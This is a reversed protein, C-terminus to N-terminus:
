HINNFSPLQIQHGPFEFAEAFQSSSSPSMESFLNAFIKRKGDANDWKKVTELLWKRGERVEWAVVCHGCQSQRYAASSKWAEM